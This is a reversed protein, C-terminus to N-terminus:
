KNAVGADSASPSKADGRGGSQGAKGEEAAKAEEEAKANHARRHTPADGEAQEAAKKTEELQKAGDPNVESIPHRKGDEGIQTEEFPVDAISGGNVDDAM